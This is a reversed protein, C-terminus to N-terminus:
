RQRDELAIEEAKRAIFQDSSTLVDRYKGRISEALHKRRERETTPMEKDLMERLQQQEEPRLARVEEIIKDLTASM